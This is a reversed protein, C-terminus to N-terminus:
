SAIENNACIWRRCLSACSVDRVDAGASLEAVRLVSDVIAFQQATMETALSGIRLRTAVLRGIEAQVPQPLGYLRKALCPLRVDDSRAILSEVNAPIM